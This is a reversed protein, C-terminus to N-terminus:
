SILIPSSKLHSCKPLIDKEPFTVTTLSLPCYQVQDLETTIQSNPTYTTRPTAVVGNGAAPVLHSLFPHQPAHFHLKLFQVHNLMVLTRSDHPIHSCSPPLHLHSLHPLGSGSLGIFCHWCLKGEGRPLSM